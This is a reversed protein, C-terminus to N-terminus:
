PMLEDLREQADCSGGETLHIPLDLYHTALFDDSVVLRLKYTRIGSGVFYGTDGRTAIAFDGDKPSHTYSL